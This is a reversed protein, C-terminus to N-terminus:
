ESFYGFYARLNDLFAQMQCSHTYWVHKPRHIFKRSCDRFHVLVQSVCVCVWCFCECVVVCVCLVFVCLWESVCVVVFVSWCRSCGVCLGVVAPLVVLGVIALRCCGVGRSLLLWCRAVVVALVARCCSGVPDVKKQISFGKPSHLKKPLEVSAGCLCWLLVVYICLVCLFVCGCSFVCVCVCDSAFGCLSM